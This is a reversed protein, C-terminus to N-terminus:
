FSGECCTNRISLPPHMHHMSHMGGTVSLRISCAIINNYYYYEVCDTLIIRYYIIIIARPGTHTEGVIILIKCQGRTYLNIVIHDAILFPVVQPRSYM